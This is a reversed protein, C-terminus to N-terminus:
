LKGQQLPWKRPSVWNEPVGIYSSSDEGFFVIYFDDPVSTKLKRSDRHFVASGLWEM